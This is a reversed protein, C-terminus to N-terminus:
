FALISKKAVTFTETPACHMNAHTISPMQYSNNDFDIKDMETNLTGTENICIVNLAKLENLCITLFGGM